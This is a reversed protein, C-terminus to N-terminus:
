VNAKFQISEMEKDTMIENEKYKPMKKNSM